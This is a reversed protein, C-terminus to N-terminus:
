AAPRDAQYRRLTTRATARVRSQFPPAWGLLLGPLGLAQRAWAWWDFRDHHDVIRGDDLRMTATVDNTVPRGTGTFTYHAVWHVRASTATADLVEHEVVLDTGRECLMRWMDGADRGVLEGFAPDEFVVDDAYCAVMAEADRAAFATYFADAQPAATV